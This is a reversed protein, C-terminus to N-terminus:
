AVNDTSPGNSVEVEFHAIELFNGDLQQLHAKPHLSVRCSLQRPEAYAFMGTQNPIDNRLSSPPLLQDVGKSVPQSTSFAVLVKLPIMSVLNYM